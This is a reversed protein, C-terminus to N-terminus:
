KVSYSMLEWEEANRGTSVFKVVNKVDPAFWSEDVWRVESTRGLRPKLTWDRRVRFAKFIGAPTKVDEYSIVKCDVEYKEPSGGVYGQASIRWTKNIELPFDFFRWDAGIPVFFMKTVDVDRGATDTLKILTLNNDLFSLCTPCDRRGGTFWIGGDGVRVVKVERVDGTTKRTWTDGVSYTPPGYPQADASTVLMLVAVISLLVRM